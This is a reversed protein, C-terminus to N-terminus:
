RKNRRKQKEEYMMRDAKELVETITFGDKPYSAFGVSASIQIELHGIFFVEEALSIIRQTVKKINESDLESDIVLVFEDGGMRIKVTGEDFRHMLRLSFALLVKDGVTHGYKDNVPKFKNLDIYFVSFAGKKWEKVNKIIADLKKRNHLRTLPDLFIQEYTQKRKREFFKIAVLILACLGLAEIISSLLLWLTEKEHVENYLYFDWDNGAIEIQVCFAKKYDFNESVLLQIKEGNYSSHIAYKYGMSEISKVEVAEYAINESDYLVSVFGWFEGGNTFIPTRVTLGTEGSQLEIPGSIQIVRKEKSEIAGAKTNEFEFVNLGVVKNNDDTPPYIWQVIGEPMYSISIMTENDFWDSAVYDFTEKDFDFDLYRVLSELIMGGEINREFTNKIRESHTQMFVEVAQEYNWQATFYRLSVYLSCICLFTFFLLLKGKKM